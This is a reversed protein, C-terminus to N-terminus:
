RRESRRRSMQDSMAGVVPGVGQPSAALDDFVTLVLAAGLVCRPPDGLRPGAVGVSSHRLPEPTTVRLAVEAPHAEPGNSRSPETPARQGTLVVANQTAPAAVYQSNCSANPACM